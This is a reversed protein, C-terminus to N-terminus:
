IYRDILLSLKEKTESPIQSPSTAITNELANVCRCDRKSPIEPVVRSIIDKIAKENKKMREVVLDMTVDEEEHWVDYDTVTAIISYCIEAERALKAEPVATMGIIDFGQDRYFNSEARTSFMPGEISVYTGSEVVQYDDKAEEAIWNSLQQCFPDAFGVHAVVGDGFFSSERKKTRDFVQDPLVINLPQIDEKLSGVANAALIREVGLKKMAFINARYNVETPSLRHGDGHRPIFVVENGEIYGVIPDSSPEGFPTEVSKQEADEILEPDYIGSGGIIGIRNM